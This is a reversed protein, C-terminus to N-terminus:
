EFNVEPVKDAGEQAEFYGKKDFGFLSSTALLSLLGRFIYYTQNKM